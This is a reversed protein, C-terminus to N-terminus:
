IVEVPRGHSGLALELGVLGLLGLWGPRGHCRALGEGVFVCLFSECFKVLLGVSGNWGPRSQRSRRLSAMAEDLM